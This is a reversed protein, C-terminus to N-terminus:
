VSHDMNRVEPSQTQTAMEVQFSNSSGSAGRGLMPSSAAPPPDRAQLHARPAIARYRRAAVATELDDQGEAGRRPYLRPRGLHKRVLSATTGDNTDKRKGRGRCEVCSKSLNKFRESYFEHTPFFRKCNKCPRINPSSELDATAKQSATVLMPFKEKAIPPSISFDPAKQQESATKHVLLEKENITLPAPAAIYVRPSYDSADQESATQLQKELLTPPALEEQSRATEHALLQKELLTRAAALGDCVALIADNLHSREVNRVLEFTSTSM